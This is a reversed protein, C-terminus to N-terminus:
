QLRQVVSRGIANKYIRRCYSMKIIDRAPKAYKELSFRQLHSSFSEKLMGQNGFTANVIGSRHIKDLLSLSIDADSHPFAFVGYQLGFRQRITRVSEVTQYLKEEDSLEIYRPHDISHAGIFFGAKILDKIEDSALYPREKSLYKDFDLDVLKAAEDLLHQKSYCTHLVAQKIDSGGSENGFYLKSILIRQSESIQRELVTALLSAKHEFCLQKNDIFATCLFFVAPIGKKRLVPAIIEYIERFGDDFVLLFSNKRFGDYNKNSQLVEFLDVPTYNKLLFDLDENFHKLNKYSYLNLLHPIERDSVVHYYPIVLPVNCIARLM